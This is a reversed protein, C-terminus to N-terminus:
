SRVHCDPRGNALEIAWSAAGYGLDLARRLQPVPGFVLRGDFVLSLVRHQAHLREAEEQADDADCRQCPFCGEVADVPQFQVGNEVAHKQFDRGHLNITRRYEPDVDTTGNHSERSSTLGQAVRRSARVAVNTVRAIM